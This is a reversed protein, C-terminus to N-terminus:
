RAQAGEEGGRLPDWLALRIERRVRRDAAWERRAPEMPAPARRGGLLRAQAWRLVEGEVELRLGTVPGDVGGSGLLVRAAGDLRRPPLPVLLDRERYWRRGEEGEVALALRRVGEGRRELAAAAEAALAALAGELAEREGLAPDFRRAGAYTRDGDGADGEDGGDGGLRRAWSAGVLERRGEEPLAALDGLTGIGRRRMREQAAAPVDPLVAPPLARWDGLWLCGEATEWRKLGGAGRRGARLVLRAEWATRGAGGELRWGWAPVLRRCADAWPEEWAEVRWPLSRVIAGREGEPQVRDALVGLGRDLVRRARGQLSSTLPLRHLAPMRLAATREAMGEVVGGAAAAANVDVVRGAAVAAAPRGGAAHVLVGRLEAVVTWAQVGM